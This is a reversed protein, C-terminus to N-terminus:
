TSDRGPFIACRRARADGFNGDTLRRLRARIRAVANRDRLSDLWETFPRHDTATVYFRISYEAAM